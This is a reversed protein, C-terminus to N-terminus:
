KKVRKLKETMKLLTQLGAETKNRHSKYLYEEIVQRLLESITIRRHFAESKLQSHIDQPLFIQTRHM